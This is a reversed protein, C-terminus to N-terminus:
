WFSNKLSINEDVYKKRSTHTMCTRSMSWTIYYETVRILSWFQTASIKPGASDRKGSNLWPKLMDEGDDTHHLTMYDFVLMRAASTDKLLISFRLEWGWQHPETASGASKGGQFVVSIVLKEEPFEFSTAWGTWSGLTRKCPGFFPPKSITDAQQAHKAGTKQQFCSFRIPFM